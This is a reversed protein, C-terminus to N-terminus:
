IEPGTTEYYALPNNENTYQDPMFYEDHNEEFIRHTMAIAGM